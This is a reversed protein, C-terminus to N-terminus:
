SNSCVVKDAWRETRRIHRKCAVPRRPPSAKQKASSLIIERLRALVPAVEAAAYGMWFALTSRDLLVGQRSMMQAQRYLPQHDAFRAVAVHAVLAETPIGGEILRAPAPEQVVISECARCAFKPRRTVIVRYQVPIVDLRESSDEGILTM